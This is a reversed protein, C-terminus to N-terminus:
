QKLETSLLICGLSVWGLDFYVAHTALLTKVDSIKESIAVVSM